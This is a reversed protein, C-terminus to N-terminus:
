SGVADRHEKARELLAVLRRRDGAEIASLMREVIGAFRKMAPGLEGANDLLIDAWLEPDGGAIRTTDRWGGATFTRSAAPTSAALAAAVLHPTHSTAALIRDHERPTMLFVTSGLAAWFGGVEETDGRPTAAVPTVVTVRGAFLEADAASPGRRHSGAIPHSGVFRGRRRRRRKEWSAVISAKTSGADTVLTGPKVAADVQDLLQPISAVGTTVVVLDAAAVAEIDLSTETVASAKKAAALSEASRGIGIVRTALRRARVARGISGGIMGVGVIAVTPWLVNM